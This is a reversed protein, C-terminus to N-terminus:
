NRGYDYINKINSILYAKSKGKCIIRNFYKSCDIKSFYSPKDYKEDLAKYYNKNDLTEVIDWIHENTYCLNESKINNDKGSYMQVSARNDKITLKSYPFTNAINVAGKHIPALYLRAKNDLVIAKNQKRLIIGGTIYACGSIKLPIFSGHNEETGIVGSKLYLKGEKLININKIRGGDVIVKGNSEITNYRIRSSLKGALITTKSTKNESYVVGNESWQESKSKFVAEANDGILNVARGGKGSGYETKVFSNDDFIVKSNDYVKFATIAPFISKQKRSNDIFVEDCLTLSSKNKISFSVHTLRSSGKIYLDRNINFKKIGFITGLKLDKGSTIISDVNPNKIASIFQIRNFVEVERLNKNKSTDKNIHKKFDPSKEIAYCDFVSSKGTEVDYKYATFYLINGDIVIKSYIPFKAASLLNTPIITSLDQRYNKVGSTGPVIFLTGNPDIATEYELGQYKIIHTDHKVTKSKDLIPTRIYVHDHGSLALDFGGQSCIEEIQIKINKVDLDDCHPGNSYPPKHTFLIKWKTKANQATSIAWDYQEKSLKGSGDDDNTNLVVFTTDKYSFSYYAGSSTDQKPIEGLNFHTLISNKGGNDLIAKKVRAEHNGALPIIPYRKWVDSNLIYNWYDENNGDDVFDGLHSVFDVNKINRLAGEFVSIFTDYDSKVMGQSDALNLFTLVNSKPPITFSYVDSFSNNELNGVRYWYTKGEELGNLELSFKSEKKTKHISLLGLSFITKPKMVRQYEANITIKDKLDKDKSYEFVNSKVCDSCFWRFNRSTSIDNGISMTIQFPKNLSEEHSADEELAEDDSFFVGNIINIVIEGMGKVFSPTMYEDVFEDIEKDIDVGFLNFFGAIQGNNTKRNLTIRLLGSDLTLKLNLYLNQSINEAISTVQDVISGILDKIVDARKFKGIAEKIWVPSSKKDKYKKMLMLIVLDYLTKERSTLPKYIGTKSLQDVVEEIKLYLYSLDDIYKEQFQNIVDDVAAILQSDTITIESIVFAAAGTLNIQIMNNRYQISARGLGSGLKINRSASLHRKIQLLFIDNLSSGIFDKEIYQKLGIKQIKKVHPTIINSFLDAIISSLLDNRELKNNEKKKSKLRFRFM